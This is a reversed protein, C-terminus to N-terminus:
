LMSNNKGMLIRATYTFPQLYDQSGAALLGLKRFQQSLYRYAKEEGATGTERGELSDHALITIHKKLSDKVAQVNVAPPQAQLCLTVIFLFSFAFVKKM